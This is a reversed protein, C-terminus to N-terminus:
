RSIVGNSGDAPRDPLRDDHRVRQFSLEAARRDGETVAPGRVMSRPYVEHALVSNLEAGYLVVRTVLLFWSLLAIVVAFTGYTDSAGNIYSQVIWSGLIQLAVLATSGVVAGPLLEHWGERGTPLFRFALLLIGLNVGFTVVLGAVGVLGGLDFIATINSAFTSAVIGAGLLVLFGLAKLRKVAINPRRFLPTDWIVDLAAQLANAAALGSWLAVVLGVVITVRSGTLAHQTDALQSGIVPVQGLAGDVLEARLDPRDDLVINLITVFVLLVPFISFLSWYSITAALRGGAHEGFRKLVAVPVAVIPHRQQLRDLRQLVRNM